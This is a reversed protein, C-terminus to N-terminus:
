PLIVIRQNTGSNWTLLAKNDCNGNNPFGYDLKFVRDNIMIGLTGESIWRCLLKKILTDEVRMRITLGNTFRTKSNGTYAYVDDRLMLTAMGAIQTKLKFSEYVYGRGNPGTVKGNIVRISFKKAGGASLNTIVKTGELHVANVYYNV